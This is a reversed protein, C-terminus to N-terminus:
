RGIYELILPDVDSVDLQNHAKAGKRSGLVWYPDSAEAAVTIVLFSDEKAWMMDIDGRRTAHLEPACLTKHRQDLASVLVSLLDKAKTFTRRAIRPAREGDWGEKLELMSKYPSVFGEIDDHTWGVAHHAFDASWDRTETEKPQLRSFIISYRRLLADEIAHSAARRDVESHSETPYAFCEAKNWQRLRTEKASKSDKGNEVVHIEVPM